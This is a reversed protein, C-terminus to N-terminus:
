LNGNPNMPVERRAAQRAANDEEFEKKRDERIRQLEELVRENSEAIRKLADINDREADSIKRGRESNPDEAAMRADEIANRNQKVRREQQEVRADWIAADTNEVGKNFIDKGMRVAKRFGPVITNQITDTMRAQQLERKREQLAAQQDKITAEGAVLGPLEQERIRKAQDLHITMVDLDDTTAAIREHEAIRKRAQDLKAKNQTARNTLDAETTAIQKQEAEMAIQAPTKTAEDIGRGLLEMTDKYKEASEKAKQMRDDLKATKDAADDTKLAFTAIAGVLAPVVALMPNFQAAVMSLNNGAARLGGALGSTGVVTLFDDVAFSLQGIIMNTRGMGAGFAQNGHIAKALERQYQMKKTILVGLAKEQGVYGRIAVQSGDAAAKAAAALNKRTRLIAQDVQAQAKVLRGVDAEFTVKEDAV